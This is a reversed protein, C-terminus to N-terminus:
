DIRLTVFSRAPTPRSDLNTNDWKQDACSALQRLGQELCTQDPRSCPSQQYEQSGFFTEVRKLWGFVSGSMQAFTPYKLVPWILEIGVDTVGPASGNRFFM